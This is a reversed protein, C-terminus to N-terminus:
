NKISKPAEQGGVTKKPAGRVVFVHFYKEKTSLCFSIKFSRISNQEAEVTTDAIADAIADASKM